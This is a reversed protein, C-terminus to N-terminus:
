VSGQAQACEEVRGEVGHDRDVLLPPDGLEVTGSLPHEAVNGGVHDPPWHGIQQDRGAQAFGVRIPETRGNGAVVRQEAPPPLQRREPQVPALEGDLEANGPDLPIPRRGERGEDAVQAVRLSGLSVQPM